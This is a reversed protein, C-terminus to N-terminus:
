EEIRAAKQACAADRTGERGTAGSVVNPQIWVNEVDINVKALDWVKVKRKLIKSLRGSTNQWTGMVQISKAGPRLDFVV